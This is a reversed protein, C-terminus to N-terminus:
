LAVYKMAGGERSKKIQFNKEKPLRSLQARVTVLMGARARDPFTDCLKDLIEDASVPTGNSKADSLVVMIQAIVGRSSKPEAGPGLVQREVRAIHKPKAQNLLQVSSDSHSSLFLNELFRRVFASNLREQTFEVGNIVFPKFELVELAIRKGIQQERRFLANLRLNTEQGKSNPGGASPKAYGNIRKALNICEGYYVAVQRDGELVVWRYLAPVSHWKRIESCSSSPFTYSNLTAQVPKWRFDITFGATMM